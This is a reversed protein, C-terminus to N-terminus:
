AQAYNIMLRLISEQNHSLSTFRAGVRLAFTTGSGQKKDPSEWVKEVPLNQLHIGSTNLLDITYAEPLEQLYLCKFSIGGESIDGLQCVGQPTVVVVDDIEYRQHLRLDPRSTGLNM